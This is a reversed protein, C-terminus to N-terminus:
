LCLALCPQDSVLVGAGQYGSSLGMQSALITTSGGVPVTIGSTNVVAGGSYASVVVNATATGVNQVQINTSWGSGPLAAFATGVALALVVVALVVGLKKM